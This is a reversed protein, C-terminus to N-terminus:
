WGLGDLEVILERVLHQVEKDSPPDAWQDRQLEAEYWWERLTHALGNLRLHRPVLFDIYLLDQEGRPLPANGQEAYDRELRLMMSDYAHIVRERKRALLADADDLELRRVMRTLEGGSSGEPQASPAAAGADPVPGDDERVPPM